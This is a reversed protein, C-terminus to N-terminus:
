DQKQGRKIYVSDFTLNITFILARNRAPITLARDFVSPLNFKTNSESSSKLTVASENTAAILDPRGFSNM